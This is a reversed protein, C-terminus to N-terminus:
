ATVARAEEELFYNRAEPDVRLTEGVDDFSGAVPKGLRLVLTNGRVGTIRGYPSEKAEM